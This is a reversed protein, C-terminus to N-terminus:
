PSQAMKMKTNTHSETTSYNTSTSYQLDYNYPHRKCCPCHRLRALGIKFKERVKATFVCFLVANVFGQGSDGIGQSTYIYHVTLM